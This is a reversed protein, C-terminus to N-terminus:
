VAVGATMRARLERLATRTWTKITGLPEGLKEAMETQSLGEYYALEIVRRQNESLNSLAKKLLNAHEENLLDREM